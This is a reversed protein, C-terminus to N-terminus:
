KSPVLYALRTIGVRSKLLANTKLMYYKSPEAYHVVLNSSPIVQLKFNVM